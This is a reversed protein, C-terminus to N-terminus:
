VIMQIPVVHNQENRTQTTKMESVLVTPLPPNHSTLGLNPCHSLQTPPGAGSSGPCGLGRHPGATAEFLCPGAKGACRPLGADGNTDEDYNSCHDNAM